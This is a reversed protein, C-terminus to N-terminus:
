RGDVSPGPVALTTVFHDCMRPVLAAAREAAERGAGDLLHGYVDSTIAISSHGLRKSILALPVGATIMLSAACHRLDHLRAPPLGAEHALQAFRKTVSAPDIPRGDERAFVLGGNTYAAGWAEREAGQALQHALLVGITRGDLDVVRAEGSSTKPPGFSLAGGVSVLQQRVVIRQRDLDVDEWRVGLVEGRRMGTAALLEFVPGLRDTSAHDLFRGLEAPQWPRVRSTTSRPLEIDQACNRSVLRSRKASALASSLTAVIRRQSTPGIPRARNANGAVIERM